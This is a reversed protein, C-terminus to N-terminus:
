SLPLAASEYLAPGPNSDWLHSWNSPQTITRSAVASASRGIVTKKSTEGSVESQVEHLISNEAGAALRIVNSQQSSQRFTILNYVANSSEAPNFLKEDLYFKEEVGEGVHGVQVAVADRNVGTARALSIHTKRIFAYLDRGTLKAKVVPGLMEALADIADKRRARDSLKDPDTPVRGDFKHERGLHIATAVELPDAKQAVPDSNPWVQRVFALTVALRFDRKCLNEPDIAEGDASVFLPDNTNRKRTYIRLEQVLEPPLTATGNLKKGDGPPLKIRDNELNAVTARLM